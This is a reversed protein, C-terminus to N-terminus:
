FICREAAHLFYLSEEGATLASLDIDGGPNAERWRCFSRTDVARDEKGVADGVGQGHNGVRPLLHCVDFVGPPERRTSRGVARPVLVSRLRPMLRTAVERVQFMVVVNRIGIGISNLSM